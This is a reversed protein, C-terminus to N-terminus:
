EQSVSLSEFFREMVSEENRFSILALQYIRTDSCLIRVQALYAEQRGTVKVGTMGQQTFQERTIERIASDRLFATMVADLTPQRDEPALTVNSVGVIALGQGQQSATWLTSGGLPTSQTLPYPIELSFGYGHPRFVGAPTTM